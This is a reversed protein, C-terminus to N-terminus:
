LPPFGEGAADTLDHHIEVGHCELDANRTVCRLKCREAELMGSAHHPPVASATPEVTGSLDNWLGQEIM